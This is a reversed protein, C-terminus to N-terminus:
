LGLLKRIKEYNEAVGAGFANTQPNAHPEIPDTINEINYLTGLIDPTDSIDFGKEKWRMTSFHLKAAAYRINTYPDKLREVRIFTDQVPHSFDKDAYLQPYINELARATDVRMQSIGISTNLHALGGIYDTLTDVFNVNMAQEQYIVGGVVVPDIGFEQGAFIILQKYAQIIHTARSEVDRQSYDISFITRHLLPMRDAHLEIYHIGSDLHEYFEIGIRKASGISRKIIWPLLSGIFYWFSFKGSVASKRVAGDVVIKVDDSDRLRKQVTVEASFRAIPLDVFVFTHWPRRNGDEAREEWTFDISQQGHLERIEVAELFASPYPILNLVHEGEELITFITLTQQAGKLETGNYAAPVNFLQIYKEPPMERFRLGNLEVRLNEDTSDSTQLKSKCRARVIIAALGAHAIRFPFLSVKTIHGHM